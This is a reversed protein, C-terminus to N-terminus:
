FAGHPCLPITGPAQAAVGAGGLPATFTYSWPLLPKPPGWQQWRHSKPRTSSGRLPNARERPPSSWFLEAIRNRGSLGCGSEEVAIKKPSVNSGLGGENAALHAGSSGPM